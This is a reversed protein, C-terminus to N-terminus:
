ANSEEDVYERYASLNRAIPLCELILAEKFIRGQGERKSPLLCVRASSLAQYIDLLNSSRVIEVQQPLSVSKVLDDTDIICLRLASDCEKVLTFADESRKHYEARLFIVIDYKKQIRLKKRYSMAIEFGNPIMKAVKVKIGNLGRKTTESICAVTNRQFSLRYILRKLYSKVGREEFVRLDHCVVIRESAQYPMLSSLGPSTFIISDDGNVGTVRIRDVACESVQKIFTKFTVWFLDSCILNVPGDHTLRLLLEVSYIGIGDIKHRCGEVVVVCTM